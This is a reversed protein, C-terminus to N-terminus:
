SAPHLEPTAADFITAGAVPPISEEREARVGNSLDAFEARVERIEEDSRNELDVMGNRAQDLARILEDLKLHIAVADRNQANQILFVMLFTVITTGTNIVLQWTNSYHFVPGTVAWAIVVLMAAMFSWTSGLRDSASRAFRRFFETFTSRSKGDASSKPSTTM